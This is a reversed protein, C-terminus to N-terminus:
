APATSPRPSEMLGQRGVPNPPLDTLRSLFSRGAVDLNVQPKELSIFGLPKELHEKDALTLM